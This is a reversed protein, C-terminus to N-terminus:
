LLFKNVEFSTFNFHIPINQVLGLSGIVKLNNGKVPYSYTIHAMSEMKFKIIEKFVCYHLYILLCKIKLFYALM